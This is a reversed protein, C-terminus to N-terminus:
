RRYHAVSARMRLCKKINEGGPLSAVEDCFGPDTEGLLIMDNKEVDAM